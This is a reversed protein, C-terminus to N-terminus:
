YNRQNAYSKKSIPNRLIGIKKLEEVTLPRGRRIPLRTAASSIVLITLLLFIHNFIRM